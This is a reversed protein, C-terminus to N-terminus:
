LRVKLKSTPKSNESDMISNFMKIAVTTERWTGRWVTGFCGQGIQEDFDLEAFPIEWQLDAKGRLLGEERGKNKNKGRAPTVDGFAYLEMPSPQGDTSTMEKHQQRLTRKKKKRLVFFLAVLGVLLLIFPLGLGFALGLPLAVNSGNGQEPEQKDNDGSQNSSSSSASAFSSTSSSPLDEDDVADVHIFQLTQTFVPNPISNLFNTNCDVRVAVERLREDVKALMERRRPAENQFDEFGCELLRAELAPFYGLDECSSSTSTVPLLGILVADRGSLELNCSVNRAYHAGMSRFDFQIFIAEDFIFQGRPTMGLDDEMYDEAQRKNSHNVAKANAVFVDVDISELQEVVMLSKLLTPLKKGDEDECSLEVAFSPTGRLSEKVNISNTSLSTSAHCDGPDSNSAELRLSPTSFTWTCVTSLSTSPGSNSLVSSVNAFETMTMVLDDADAWASSLTWSPATPFSKSATPPSAQSGVASCQDVTITIAGRFDRPPTFKWQKKGPGSTFIDADFSCTWVGTGEAACGAPTVEYAWVGDDGEVTMRVRCQADRAASPGANNLRFEFWFEEGPTLKEDASSSVITPAISTVAPGTKFTGTVSVDQQPTDYFNTHLYLGGTALVTQQFRDEPVKFESRITKDAISTTTGSSRFYCLEGTQSIMCPWDPWQAGYDLCPCYWGNGWAKTKVSSSTLQLPSKLTHDEVKWVTTAIVGPTPTAPECGVYTLKGETASLRLILLMVLLGLNTQPYRM